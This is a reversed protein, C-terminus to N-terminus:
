LCATRQYGETGAHSAADSPSMMYDSFQAEVQAPDVNYLTRILYELDAKAETFPRALEKGEAEPSGRRMWDELRLVGDKSANDVPEMIRQAKEATIVEGRSQLQRVTQAAQAAAKPLSPPGSDTTGDACGMTMVTAALALSMGFRQLQMTG